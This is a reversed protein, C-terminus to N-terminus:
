NLVKNNSIYIPEIIDHKPLSLIKKINLSVIENFSITKYEINGFFNFQKLGLESNSFIIKLLNNELKLEESNNDIKKVKFLNQYPDYTYIFNQNNSSSIFIAASKIQSQDIIYLLIDLCSLGILNIKKALSLGSLFSIGVRLATYSGPGTNTILHRLNSNLSFKKELELYAPIICDSMKISGNSLIEKSYIIKNDEIISFEPLPSVTDLFLIM